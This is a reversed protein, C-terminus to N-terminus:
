AMHWAAGHVHEGDDSSVEVAAARPGSERSNPTNPMRTPGQKGPASHSGGSGKYGPARVRYACCRGLFLNQRGTSRRHSSPWVDLLSSRRAALSPLDSHLQPTLRARQEANLRFDTAVVLGSFNRAGLPCSVTLAPLCVRGSDFTNCTHGCYSWSASCSHLARAQLAASPQWRRPIKASLGFLEARLVGTCDLAAVLMGRNTGPWRWAAPPLPYSPVLHQLLGSTLPATGVQTRDWMCWAM